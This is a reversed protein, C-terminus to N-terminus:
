PPDFSQDRAKTRLGRGIGDSPRYKRWGPVRGLIHACQRKPFRLRSVGKRTPYDGPPHAAPGIECSTEIHKPFKASPIFSKSYSGRTHSTLVDIENIAQEGSAVRNEVFAVDDHVM